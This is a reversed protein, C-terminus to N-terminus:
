PKGEQPQDRLQELALKVNIIASRGHPEMWNDLHKDAKAIAEDLASQRAQAMHREIIPTIAALAAAALYKSDLVELAQECERAWETM